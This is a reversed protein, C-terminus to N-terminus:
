AEEHADEPAPTSPTHEAQIASPAATQYPLVHSPLSLTSSHSVGAKLLVGPTM